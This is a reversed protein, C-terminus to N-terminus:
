INHIHNIWDWGMGEYDSESLCKFSWALCNRNAPVQVPVFGIDLLRDIFQAWQRLHQRKDQLSALVVEAEGSPLENTGEVPDVEQLAIEIEAEFAAEEAAIKSKSKSSPSPSVRLRNTSCKKAPM